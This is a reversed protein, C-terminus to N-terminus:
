AYTSHRFLTGLLLRGLLDSSFMSLFYDLPRLSNIRRVVCDALQASDVQDGKNGQKPAGLRDCVLVRSVRPSLLDHLWQAQTGEELACRAGRRAHWSLVGAAGGGRDAARQARHDQRQFEAGDRVHNGPARQSGCVQDLTEHPRRRSRHVRPERGSIGLLSRARLM